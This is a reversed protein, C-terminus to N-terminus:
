FYAGNSDIPGVGLFAHRPNCASQLSSPFCAREKQGRCAGSAEQPTLARSGSEAASSAPQALWDQSVEAEKGKLESSGM